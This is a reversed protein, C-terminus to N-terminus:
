NGNNGGVGTLFEDVPISMAALLALAKTEPGAMAIRYAAPWAVYGAMNDNGSLAALSVAFRAHLKHNQEIWRCVVPWDDGSYFPWYSSEIVVTNLRHGQEHEAKLWSELAARSPTAWDDTSMVYSQGGDSTAIWRANKEAGIAEGLLADIKRTDDFNLTKIRM